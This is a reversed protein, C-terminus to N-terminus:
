KLAALLEGIFRASTGLPLRVQVGGPLAIEVGAPGDPAVTEARAELAPSPVLEVPLFRTRSGSVSSLKKSKTYLWYQFTSFSLDHKAVFEKQSLGSTQYEAILKTWEDPGPRNM